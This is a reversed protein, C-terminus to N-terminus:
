FHCFIVAYYSQLNRAGSEVFSKYTFIFPKKPRLDPCAAIHKVSLNKNWFEDTSWSCWTESLRPSNGVSIFGESRTMCEKFDFCVEPRLLPEEKWSTPQNWGLKTQLCYYMGRSFTCPVSPDFALASLQKGGKKVQVGKGKGLTSSEFSIVVESNRATRAYARLFPLNPSGGPAGPSRQSGDSTSKRHHMQHKQKKKTKNLRLSQSGQGVGFKKLSSREFTPSLISFISADTLGQTFNRKIVVALNPKSIRLLMSSPCSVRIQWPHLSPSCAPQVCIFKPYRHTADSLQIQKHKSSLHLM